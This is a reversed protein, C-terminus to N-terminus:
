ACACMRVGECMYVCVCPSAPCSGPTRPDRGGPNQTHIELSTLSSAHRALVSALINETAPGCVTLSTLGSFRGLFHDPIDYLVMDLALSRVRSWHPPSAASAPTSRVLAETVRVEAVNPLQRAAVDAKFQRLARRDHATLSRVSHRAAALLRKCVLGAVGLRPRLPVFSLVHELVDVPLSTFSPAAAAAAPAEEAPDSM